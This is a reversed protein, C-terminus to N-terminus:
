LDYLQFILVIVFFCVILNVCVIFVIAGVGIINDAELVHLLKWDGHFISKGILLNRSLPLLAAQVTVV